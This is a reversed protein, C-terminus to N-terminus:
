RRPQWWAPCRSCCCREPCCVQMDVCWWCSVREAPDKDCWPPPLLTVARFVVFQEGNCPLVDFVRQVMEVALGQQRQFLERRGATVRGLGVCLDQRSPLRAQPEPTLRMGRNLGTWGSRPLDCRLAARRLSSSDAPNLAAFPLPLLPSPMFRLNDHRKNNYESSAFMSDNTTPRSYHATESALLRDVLKLVGLSVLRQGREKGARCGVKALPQVAAASRRRPLVCRVSAGWAAQWCVCAVCWCAVGHWPLLV